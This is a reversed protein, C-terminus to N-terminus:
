STNKGIEAAPSCWLMGTPLGLMSRPNTASRQLQTGQVQMRPILLCPKISAPLESSMHASAAPLARNRLDASTPM